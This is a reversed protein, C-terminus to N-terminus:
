QTKRRRTKRVTCNQPTRTELSRKPLKLTEKTVLESFKGAGSALSELALSASKATAAGFAAALKLGSGFAAMAMKEAARIIEEPNPENTSQHAKRVPKSSM